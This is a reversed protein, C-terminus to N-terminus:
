SKYWIPLEKMSDCGNFMFRMDHIKSVDWRNLDSNFNVCISFMAYMDSVNSVDWSSLNSNFNICEYFM